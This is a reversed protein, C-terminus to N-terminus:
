GDNKLHIELIDFLREKEHQNLNENGEVMDYLYDRTMSRSERVRTIRCTNLKSNINEIEKGGSQNSNSKEQDWWKRQWKTNEENGYTATLNVESDESNGETELNQPRLFQRQVTQEGKIYSLSETEFSLGIGYDKMFQCGEIILQPSLLFNAEFKDEGLNFEVLAQKRIKNSKKGFATILVVSEVPLTPIEVGLKTLDFYVSETLLNVESGTDLIAKFTVKNQKQLKRVKLKLPYESRLV